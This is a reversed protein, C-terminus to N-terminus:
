SYDWDKGPLWASGDRGIAHAAYFAQGMIVACLVGLATFVYTAPPSAWGAVSMASLILTCTGISILGALVGAMAHREAVMAALERTRGHLAALPAIEHAEADQAQVAGPVVAAFGILLAVILIFLIWSAHQSEIADLMRASEGAPEVLTLLPANVDLSRLAEREAQAEGASSISPDLVYITARSVGPLERVSVPDQALVTGFSEDFSRALEPTSYLVLNDTGGEPTVVIAATPATGHISTVAQRLSSEADADSSVFEVQSIRADDVHLEFSSSNMVGYFSILVGGVLVFVGVLSSLQTMRLSNRSTWSWAVRRLGSGSRTALRSAVWRVVMAVGFPLGIVAALLTLPIWVDLVTDPVSSMRVLLLLGASALSGVFAAEGARVSHSTLLRRRHYKRTNRYYHVSPWALFVCLTLLVLLTGILGTPLTSRIVVPHLRFHTIPLSVSTACAVAYLVLAIGGGVTVPPACRRLLYRELHRRDAGVLELRFMTAAFVRREVRRVYLALALAPLGIGGVLALILLEGNGEYTVTGFAAGPTGWGSAYYVGSSADEALKAFGSTDRPVVYALNEGDLAQSRDIVSDIPGFQSKVYDAEAELSDSVAVHGAKPWSALGPPPPTKSTLPEAYLVTVLEGAHATEDIRFVVSAGKQTDVYSPGRDTALASRYDLEASAVICALVSIVSVASLIVLLIRLRNLAM